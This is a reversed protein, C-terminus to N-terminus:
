SAFAQIPAPFGLFRLPEPFTSKSPVISSHSRRKSPSAHASIACGCFSAVKTHQASMVWEQAKSEKLQIVTFSVRSRVTKTGHSYHHTVVLLPIQIQLRIEMFDQQCKSVKQLHLVAESSGAEKRDMTLVNRLTEEEM